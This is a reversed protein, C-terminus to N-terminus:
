RTLRAWRTSGRRATLRCCATTAPSCRARTRPRSARSTSSGYWGRSRRIPAGPATPGSRRRARAGLARGPRAPDCVDIPTADLHVYGSGLVATKLHAVLPAVLADLQTMLAVQTSRALTVGTRALQQEIRYFPLHESYHAAALHAIVSVHMRARPLVDAPWPTALPATKTPSVWVTREFAKVYYVPARRALVELREAFGPVLAAGTLPCRRAAEPPDPLVTVERALAPDLPKPGPRAPGGVRRASPAPPTAGAFVAEPLTGPLTADVAAFLSLAPAVAAFLSLAPAVAAFLSLAPAGAAASGLGREAKRGWLQQQLDKVRLTLRAVEGELDHVRGRLGDVMDDGARPESLM